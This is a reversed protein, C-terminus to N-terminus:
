WSMHEAIYFPGSNKINASRKDRQRQRESQRDRQRDRQRDWRLDNPLEKFTQEWYLYCILNVFIKTFHSEPSHWLVCNTIIWCQYLVHSPATICRDMEQASTSGSEHQWLADNPWLSNVTIFCWNHIKINDLRWLFPSLLTFPKM